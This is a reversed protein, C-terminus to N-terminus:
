ISYYKNSHSFSPFVFLGVKPSNSTEETLLTSTSKRVWLYLVMPTLRLSPNIIIFMINKLNNPSSLPTLTLIFLVTPHSGHYHEKIHYMNVTDKVGPWQYVDRVWGWLNPYDIIRKKNCKFHGQFLYLYM